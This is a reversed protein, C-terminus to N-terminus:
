VGVESGTKSKCVSAEALYVYMSRKYFAARKPMKKKLLPYLTMLGLFELSIGLFGIMGDLIPRWIPLMLVLLIPKWCREM